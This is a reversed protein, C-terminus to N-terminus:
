ASRLLVREVCTLRLALPERCPETYTLREVQFSYYGALTSTRLRSSEGASSRAGRVHFAVSSCSPLMVSEATQVHPVITDSLPNWTSM